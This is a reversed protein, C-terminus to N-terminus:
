LPEVVIHNCLNNLDEKTNLQNSFKFYQRAMSSAIRKMKLSAMKNVTTLM